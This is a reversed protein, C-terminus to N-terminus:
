HSTMLPNREGIVRNSSKGVAEQFSLSGSVPVTGQEASGVESKEEGSLVRDKLTDFNIQEVSLPSGASYELSVSL